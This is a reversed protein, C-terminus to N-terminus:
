RKAEAWVGAELAALADQYEEPTNLDVNVTADEIEIVDIKAAHRILVARLGQDQETVTRLEDLLAGDLLVPHGGHGGFRPVVIEAQSALKQKILLRLVWAPRPQDVSAVIIADPSDFVAAAGKRLSSAKGDRYAENRVLRTGTANPDLTASIEDAAHGLVILM